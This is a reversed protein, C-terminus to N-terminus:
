QGHIMTLVSDSFKLLFVCIKKKEVCQYPNSWPKVTTQGHDFCLQGHDYFDHDFNKFDDNDVMTQGHDYMNLCPDHIDKRM